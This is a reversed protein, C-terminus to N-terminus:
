NHQKDVKHDDCSRSIGTLVRFLDLKVRPRITAIMGDSPRQEPDDLWYMLSKGVVHPCGFCHGVEHDVVSTNIQTWGSSGDTGLTVEPVLLRIRCRANVPDICGLTTLSPDSDTACGSRSMSRPNFLAITMKADGTVRNFRIGARQWGKDENLSADLQELIGNTVAARQEATPKSLGAFLQSVDVKYDTARLSSNHAAQTVAPSPSPAPEALGPRACGGAALTVVLTAAVSMLKFM